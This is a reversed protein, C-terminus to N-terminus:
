RLDEDAATEPGKAGDQGSEEEDAGEELSTLVAPGRGGQPAVQRQMAGDGEGVLQARVRGLRGREGRQVVLIRVRELRGVRAVTLERVGVVRGM